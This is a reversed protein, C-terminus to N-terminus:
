KEMYVLMKDKAIILQAGCTEADDLEAQIVVFQMPILMIITLSDSFLQTSMQVCFWRM